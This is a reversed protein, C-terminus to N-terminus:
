LRSDAHRDALQFVAHATGQQHTGGLAYVGCCFPFQKIGIQFLSQAQNLRCFFFIILHNMHFHAFQLNTGTVRNNGIEQQMMQLLIMLEIGIDIDLDGILSGIFRQAQQSAAAYIDTEDIQGNGIVFIQFHSRTDLDVVYQYAPFAIAHQCFHPHLHFVQGLIRQQQQFIQAVGAAIDVAIRLFVAHHQVRNQFQAAAIQQDAKRLDIQPQSIDDLFEGLFFQCAFAQIFNRYLRGHRLSADTHHPQFINGHGM